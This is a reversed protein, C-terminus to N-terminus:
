KPTIAIRFMQRIVNDFIGKSAKVYTPSHKHMGRELIVDIPVESLKRLEEPDTIGTKRLLDPAPLSPVKKFGAYVQLM